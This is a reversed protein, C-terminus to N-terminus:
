HAGRRRLALAGCLLAPALWLLVTPGTAPLQADSATVTTVAPQPALVRRTHGAPFTVSRTGIRLTLGAPATVDLTLPRALSLRAATVDVTAATVGDVKVTLENRGTSRQMAGDRGRMSWNGAADSGSGSVPKTTFGTGGGSTADIRGFRVGDALRIASLWYAKDYVVGPTRMLRDQVYTVTAPSRERRGDGLFPDTVDTTLGHMRPDHTRNPWEWYRFRYGMGDLTDAFERAATVPTLEDATGQIIGVPVNRANAFLDLYNFATDSCHATKASPTVCFPTTYSEVALLRAWLDPYLLGLRYTGLSGMSMGTLYLREQDVSYRRSVDSLVEFADSEAEGEYHGGEGYGFPTVILAGRSEALKAVGPFSAIDYVTHWCALCHLLLIVPNRKSPDYTSPVYVSYPQVTGRYIRASSGQGYRSQNVLGEGLKLRPPYARTFGGRQLPEAVSRGSALVAPDGPVGELDHRALRGSQVADLRCAKAGIVPEDGVYAADALDGMGGSALLGAVANVRWPGRPLDSLPVTAEVTNGTVDVAARAPKGDVTGASGAVVVTHDFGTFGLASGTTASRDTDLLLAVTTTKDTLLTELQWLVHLQGGQVALRVQVLDSSNLRHDDDQPYLLDGTTWSLGPQCLGTLTAADAATQPTTGNGPVTDAGTDDFPRDDLVLEGRSVTADASIGSGDGVWAHGLLARPRLQDPPGTTPRRYQDGPSEALAAPAPLVVALVLSCALTALRRHHGPRVVPSM